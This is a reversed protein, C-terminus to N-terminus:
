LSDPTYGFFLDTENVASPNNLYIKVANQCANMPLMFEEEIQPIRLVTAVVDYVADSLEGNLMAMMQLMEDRDMNKLEGGDTVNVIFKEIEAMASIVAGVRRPSLYIDKYVRTALFMRGDETTKGITDGMQECRARFEQTNPFAFCVTYTAPVIETKNPDGMVHIEEDDIAMYPTDDKEAEKIAQKLEDLQEIKMMEAM